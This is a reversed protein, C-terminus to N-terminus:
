KGHLEQKTDAVLVIGDVYFLLFVETANGISIGIYESMKLMVELENSFIM